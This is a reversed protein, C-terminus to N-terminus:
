FNSGVPQLMCNNRHKSPAHSHRIVILVVKIVRRDVVTISIYYQGSHDRINCPHRPFKNCRPTGFLIKWYKFNPNVNSRWVEFTMLANINFNLKGSLYQYLRLSLIQLWRIPWIYTCFETTLYTGFNQKGMFIYIMSPCIAHMVYM